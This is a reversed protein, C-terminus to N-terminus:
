QWSKFQSRPLFSVQDFGKGYSLLVAYVQARNPEGQREVLHEIVTELGSKLM